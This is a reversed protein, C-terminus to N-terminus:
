RALVASGLGVALTLACSLEVQDESVPRGLLEEARKIRYAVTNQHIYLDKAVGSSSGGVPGDDATSADAMAPM